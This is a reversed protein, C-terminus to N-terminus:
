SSQQNHLVLRSHTTTQREANGKRYVPSTDLTYGAEREIVAPIPELGVAVGIAYGSSFPYQSENAAFHNHLETSFTNQTQLLTVFQCRGYIFLYMYLCHVKKM